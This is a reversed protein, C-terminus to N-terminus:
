IRSVIVQCGGPECTMVLSGSAVVGACTLEAGDGPDGSIVFHSDEGVTGVFPTPGGWDASVACDVQTVILPDGVLSAECHVQIRYEGTADPCGDPWGGGGNEDGCGLLWWAALLVLLSRSRAPAM